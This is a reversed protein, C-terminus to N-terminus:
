ESKSLKNLEDIFDKNSPLNNIDYTKITRNRTQVELTYNDFDIIYAWQCGSEEMYDYEDKLIIKKDTSTEIASLIKAGLDRIIYKNFWKMDDPTPNNNFREVFKKDKGEIDLFRCKQLNSILKKIRDKNILFELVAVGQCSPYGDWQGYQAVKIEESKKVVIVHRTGM